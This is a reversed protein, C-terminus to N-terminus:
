ERLFNLDRLRLEFPWREVPAPVELSFGILHSTTACRPPMSQLLFPTTHWTLQTSKKNGSIDLKSIELPSQPAIGVFNRVSAHPMIRQIESSQSGDSHLWVILPYAYNKEYHLPVFLSYQDSRNTIKDFQDLTKLTSDKSSIEDTDVSALPSLKIRNM